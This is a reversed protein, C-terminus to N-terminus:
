RNKEYSQYYEKHPNKKIDNFNPRYPRKSRDMDIKRPIASRDEVNCMLLRLAKESSKVLKEESLDGLFM